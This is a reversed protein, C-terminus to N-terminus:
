NGDEWDDLQAKPSSLPLQKRNTLNAQREIHRQEKSYPPPHGNLPTLSQGAHIAFSGSGVQRRSHIVM